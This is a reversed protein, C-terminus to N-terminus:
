REMAKLVRPALWEALIEHGRPKLHYLNCFLSPDVLSVADHVVVLREARLAAQARAAFRTRELWDEPRFNPRRLPMSVFLVPTPSKVKRRPARVCERLLWDSDPTWPGVRRSRIETEGRPEGTEWSWAGDRPEILRNRLRVLGSHAALWTTPDFAQCRSLFESSLRRRVSALHALEGIDSNWRAQDLRAPSVGARWTFNFTHAVYIVMDPRHAAARAGLIAMEPGHGGVVSWNLVTWRDEPRAEALARELRAPFCVAADEYERAFGQSNSILIILRHGPDRPRPATYDVWNRAFHPNRRAEYSDPAALAALVGRAAVEAAGLTLLFACASGLLARAGPRSPLRVFRLASRAIRPLVTKQPGLGM